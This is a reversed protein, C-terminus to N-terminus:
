LEVDIEKVGDEPPGFRLTAIAGKMFSTEELTTKITKFLTEANPGYLYLFGDSDDMAIEHGDFEGVNSTRLIDELKYGLVHLPDLSNIGYNFHIIIAHEPNKNIPISKQIKVPKKGFLKEYLEM